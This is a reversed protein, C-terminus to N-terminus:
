FVLGDLGGLGLPEKAFFPEAARTGIRSGFYMLSGNVWELVNANNPNRAFQSEYCALARRKPEEWGTVDVCFNPVFPARLHSCFYYFLWRPYIPTGPLDIKTLKADFRADEVIRTVARHDPHADEPHPCFIVHAQFERIVGAMAHRSAINHEVVRNTLGLLRRPVGLIAAAAASEKARTEPDGCPTPEGNTVDLILVNHGGGGKERPAALKAITAGM